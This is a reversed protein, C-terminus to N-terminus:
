AETDINDVNLPALLTIPRWSRELRWNEIESKHSALKVMLDTKSEVGMALKLRQFYDKSEARIFIDFKHHFGGYLITRPYWWITKLAFHVFTLYDAQSFDEFSVIGTTCREKWIETSLTIKNLKLRENRTRDFIPVPSWLYAISDSSKGYSDIKLLRLRFLQGIESFRSNRILVAIFHILLEQSLFMVIDRQATASKGSPRIQLKLCEELFTQFNGLLLSPELSAVLDIFEDFQKLLTQTSMVANFVNDDIEGDSYDTSAIARISNTLDSFFDLVESKRAAENGTLFIKKAQFGSKILPRSDDDDLFKPRSGLPPKENIPKDYINRVIKQYNDVDSEPRMDIYMRSKLFAPLCPEGNEMSEVVIPIFKTQSVNEYLSASVIQSETGVGGERVNAKEVYRRDLILLVKEVSPDNIMREMFIYKDQGEKLDWKDLIIDIGDARLRTALDIVSNEHEQSTWSYSIFARPTKLETKDM